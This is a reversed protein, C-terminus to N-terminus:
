ARGGVFEQSGEPATAVGQGRGSRRRYGNQNGVCVRMCVCMCVCVHVCMCVCACVHVCVCTVYVVCSCARMCM